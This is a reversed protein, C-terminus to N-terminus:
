PSAGSLDPCFNYPPWPGRLELGLGLGQYLAQQATLAQSFADLAQPALLFSANFVMREPRGTVASSHCRLPTSGAAQAQLAQLLDASTHALGAELAQDMLADLQKQQLYRAGPSQSLSSRRQAVQGDEEAFLARARDEDLLYGKVSWEAKDQLWELGQAIAARHTAMFQALSARTRFLTGFKVPLVPSADMVSAVVLEHLGAREGVWALTQLNEESFDAIVVESIVAVVQSAADTDALATVPFRPDVSRLAEDGALELRALCQPRALCYLYIGRAAAAPALSDAM